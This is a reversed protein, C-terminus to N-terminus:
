INGSLDGEDTRRRLITIGTGAQKRHRYVAFEKEEVINGAAHELVIMGTESLINNTYIYNLIQENEVRNYPPDCFIIDFQRERKYLAKIGTRYDAAYCEATGEIGLKRLNKKLLEIVNRNADVFVANQAGRSLAEIGMIGSGCFLDLVEADDMNGIMDFVSKRVLAKTPRTIKGNIVSTDIHRNRLEGSIIKIM